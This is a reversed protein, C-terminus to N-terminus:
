ASQSQSRVKNALDRLYEPNQSLKQYVTALTAPDHGCLTALSVSDYGAILGETIYTHRLLTACLGEGYKRFRIRIANRTLPRKKLNRFIPGSPFEKMRRKVVEAAKENCYIVRPKKKGKAKSIPLVFRSHAEDFHVSELVRIEQVRCGTERMFVLFDHYPGSPEKEMMEDWKVSSIIKERRVAAPKDMGALPNTGILGEKLAWSFVRQVSQIAGRRTSDSSEGYTKDAWRRVDYPRIKTIAKKVARGFSTIFNEYYAVTAPARNFQLWAFFEQLLEAVPTAPSVNLGRDLKKWEDYAQKESIGTGLRVQRGEHWVMWTDRKRLYYPKRMIVELAPSM